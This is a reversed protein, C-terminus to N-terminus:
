SSPFQSDSTADCLFPSEGVYSMAQAMLLALRPRLLKSPRKAYDTAIETLLPISSNLSAILCTQVLALESLLDESYDAFLAPNSMTHPLDIFSDHYNSSALTCLNHSELM